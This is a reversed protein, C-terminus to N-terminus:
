PSGLMFSKRNSPIHGGFQSGFCIRDTIQDFLRFDSVYVSGWHALSWVGAKTLLHGRARAPCVLSHESIGHSLCNM